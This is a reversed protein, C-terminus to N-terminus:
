EGKKRRVGKKKIETKEKKNHEQKMLYINNLQHKTFEEVFLKQNKKSIVIENEEENIECITKFHRTAFGRVYREESYWCFCDKYAQAYEKAFQKIARADNKLPSM